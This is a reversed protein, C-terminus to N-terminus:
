WNVDTDDTTKTRLRLSFGSRGATNFMSAYGRITGTTPGTIVVIGRPAANLVTVNISGVTETSFNWMANVALTRTTSGLYAGSKDYFKVTADQQATHTNAVNFYTQWGGSTNSYWFSRDASAVGVSMLMGVIVFLGIHKKM